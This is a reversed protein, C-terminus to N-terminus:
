VLVDDVEMQGPMELCLEMAIATNLCERGRARYEAITRKTEEPSGIWYGGSAFSSCIPYGEKRLATILERVERDNLHMRKSLEERSKKGEYLISLLRAKATYNDLNNTTDAKQTAARAPMKKNTMSTVAILEIFESILKKWDMIEM